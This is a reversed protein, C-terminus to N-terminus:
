GNRRMARLLEWAEEVSEVGTVEVGRGAEAQAVSSAPLVIRKFGLRTAERVRARIQSVPRIEGTLGVEGLVALDTPLPRDSHSSALAAIVALDVGPDDVRM